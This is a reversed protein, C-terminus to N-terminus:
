FDLPNNVIGVFLPFGTDSVIEFIFPRDAIFDATDDPEGAGATGAAILAAAKCEEENIFVRTSQKANFDIIDAETIPSFDSKSSDFIDTIGMQKLGDELDIESSVDFKPISINIEVDKQNSYLYPRNVLMFRVAQKDSFLEEPTVGEDPLIIRMEGICSIPLSVAAFKDGWYYYDYTKMNMFDCETDGDPSHFVAPRTKSKPFKTEWKGSYYVTSALTFVMEPSMVMDAEPTIIGRTQESVWDQFMKNYEYSSPNGSFVSAFYNEALSDVTSQEYTLDSNTWLSDAFICEAIGDDSYNALWVAKIYRHLFDMDEQSIADLIQQRTNGETIEACMGLAVYLSVPSYIKNGNKSESLFTKASNIFFDDFCDAYREANNRLSNRFSKWNDYGDNFYNPMDPYEASALIQTNEDSIYNEPSLPLYTTIQTTEAPPESVATSEAPPVTESSTTETAKTGSNTTKATKSSATTETATPIATVTESVTVSPTESTDATETTESSSIIEAPVSTEEPPATFTNVSVTPSTETQIPQIATDTSINDSPYKVLTGIGIILAVCAALATGYGIWSFKPKGAPPTEAAKIINEDLDGLVEYFKEKKM